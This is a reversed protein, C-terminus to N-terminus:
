LLVAVDDLHLWKLGDCHPRSLSDRGNGSRAIGIAGRRHWRHEDARV